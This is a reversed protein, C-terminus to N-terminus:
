SHFMDPDLDDGGFDGFFAQVQRPDSKIMRIMELQKTYKAHEAQIPAMRQLAKGLAALEEESPTLRLIHEIIPLHNGYPTHEFRVNDTIKDIRARLANVRLELDREADDAAALSFLFSTEVADPREANDPM